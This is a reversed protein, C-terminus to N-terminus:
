YKNNYMMKAELLEPKCRGYMTRKVMKLKNNTGEVFGNSLPSAVANVIAEIDGELSKAFSSLERIGSNKYHEIFLYLMPINRKRFIERFHRICSEVECLIPYKELIYRHHEETLSIGMWLHNFIGKRTIVKAVAKKRGNGDHGPTINSYKSINLGYKRATATIFQRAYSDTGTYGLKPLERVISSATLGAEISKIVFNIHQELISKTKSRCLVDPDGELYKMVTKREKGTLRAIERILRGERRMEQIQVM